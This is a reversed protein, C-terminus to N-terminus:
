LGLLNKIKDNCNSIAAEHLDKNQRGKIIYNKSVIKKYELLGRIDILTKGIDANAWISASQNIDIKYQNIAEKQPEPEPKPTTKPEPQDKEFLGGDVEEQKDERAAQNDEQKGAAEEESPFPVGEYHAEVANEIAKKFAIGNKVSEVMAKFAATNSVDITLRKKM